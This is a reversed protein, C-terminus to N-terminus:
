IDKRPGLDVNEVKSGRSMYQAAAFSQKSLRQFLRLNGTEPGKSMGLGWRKDRDMLVSAM